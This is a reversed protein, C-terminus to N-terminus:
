SCYIGILYFIFAGRIVVYNSFLPDPYSVEVTTNIVKHTINLWKPINSLDTKNKVTPESSNTAGAILISSSMLMIMLSIFKLNPITIRKM